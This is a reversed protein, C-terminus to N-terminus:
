KNSIWFFEPVEGFYNSIKQRNKETSVILYGESLKSLVFEINCPFAKEGKKKLYVCQNKLTESRKKNADELFEKGKEKWFKKMAESINKNKM